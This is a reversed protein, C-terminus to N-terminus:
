GTAMAFAHAGEEAAFNGARSVYNTQFASGHVTAPGTEGATFLSIALNQFNWVSPSLGVSASNSSIGAVPVGASTELTASITASGNDSLAHLYFQNNFTDQVLSATGPIGSSSSM